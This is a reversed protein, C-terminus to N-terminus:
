PLPSLEYRGLGLATLSGAHIQEGIALMPAIPGLDGELFLTGRLGTMPIPRGPANRSFRDWAVPRLGDAEIRIAACVGRWATWDLALGIHQWRAMGGVQNLLRFLLGDLSGTLVGGKRLVLPTLFHLAARADLQPVPVTESRTWGGGIVTLPVRRRDDPVPAIGGECAAVLATAAAQAWVGAFGFLGLRIVITRADVALQFVYPKPVEVSSRVHGHLGMLASYPGPRNFLRDPEMERELEQLRRGWAGRINGPLWPFDDFGEPRRCVVEVVTRRWLPPLGALDCRLPPRALREALPLPGTDGLTAADITPAESM